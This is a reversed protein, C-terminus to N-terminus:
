SKEMNTRTRYGGGDEECGKRNRKSPIRKLNLKSVKSNQQQQQNYNNSAPASTRASAIANPLFFTCLFLMHSMCAYDYVTGTGM